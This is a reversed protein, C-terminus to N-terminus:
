RRWGPWLRPGVRLELGVACAGRERGGSLRYRIGSTQTPKMARVGMHMRTALCFGGTTFIRM